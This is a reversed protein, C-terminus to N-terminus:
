HKTKLVITDPKKSLFRKGSTNYRNWVTQVTDTEFGNKEFILRSVTNPNKELRFYGTSDTLVYKKGINDETVRVDTLPQKKENVTIGHYNESPKCSITFFILILIFKKM